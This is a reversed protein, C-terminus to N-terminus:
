WSCDDWPAIQYAMTQEGFTLPELGQRAQSLDFNETKFFVSSLVVLYLKVGVLIAVLLYIFSLLHQRPPPFVLVKM